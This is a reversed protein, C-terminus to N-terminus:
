NKGAMEIDVVQNHSPRKKMQLPPAEKITGPCIERHDDHTTLMVISIHKKRICIGCVIISVLALLSVSVMTAIFAGKTLGFYSSDHSNSTITALYSLFIYNPKSLCM